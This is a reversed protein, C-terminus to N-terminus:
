NSINKYKQKILFMMYDIDSSKKFRIVYVSGKTGNRWTWFREETLNKSDDIDFYNRSKEGDTKINGRVLEIVISEKRFIFYSITKNGSMLSIYDRKPVLEVGDLESLNERLQNWRQLLEENCKSTHEDEEFVKVEKGVDKIVSNESGELKQISEKSTSMYQNLSITNNSYKKIEWLEFPVDKFNISNKQYSNFSPSIFIIKSQSWDVENKKLSKGTKEIFELIFDSKNNLMISMYSYGQDIVSYSSGKKYEIVVFSNSENDFCLSDLRFDGVTFETSIFELNFLTDVNSEILGQIDKELEFSKSDVPELKNNKLNYLDM